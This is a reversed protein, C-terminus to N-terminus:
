NKLAKIRSRNPGAIYKKGKGSVTIENNTLSLNQNSDYIHIGNGDKGPHILNNRIYGSNAKYIRHKVYIGAGKKSIKEITNSNIDLSENDGNVFIGTVGSDIINNNTIKTRKTGYVYIAGTQGLGVATCGYGSIINGIVINDKGIEYGTQKEDMSGHVVIGYSMHKKPIYSEDSYIINGKITCRRPGRKEGKVNYSGTMIGIRCNEIINNIFSISTGGHTDLAEWTPINRIINESIIIKKSVPRKEETGNHKSTQIGYCNSGYKNDATIDHINNKNVLGELSSHMAIGAYYCNYINNNIIRFNKVFETDIAKFWNFLTCGSIKINSIYNKANKGTILIGEHDPFKPSPPTTKNIILNQISVNSTTVRFGQQSSNNVFTLTAGNGDLMVPNNIIITGSIKYQGHPIIIKQNFKASNFIENFASCNYTASKEPSIDLNGTNAAFSYSCLFLFFFFLLKKIRPNDLYPIKSKRRNQEKKIFNKNKM